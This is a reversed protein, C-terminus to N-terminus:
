EESKRGHAHALIQLVQSWEREVRRQDNRVVQVSWAAAIGIV